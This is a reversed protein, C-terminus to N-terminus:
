VTEGHLLDVFDEVMMLTLEPQLSPLEPESDKGREQIMARGTSASARIKRLCCSGNVKIHWQALKVLPGDGGAAWKKQGGAPCRYRSTELPQPKVLYPTVAASLASAAQSELNLLSTSLAGIPLIHFQSLDDALLVRRNQCYPDAM